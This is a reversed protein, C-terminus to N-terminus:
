YLHYTRILPQQERQADFRRSPYITDSDSDSSLSMKNAAMAARNIKSNLYGISSNSQKTSLSTSMKSNDHTFKLPRFWENNRRFNGIADNFSLSKVAEGTYTTAAPNPTNDNASSGSGSGGVGGGGVGGGGGGTNRSIHNTVPDDTDGNYGDEKDTMKADRECHNHYDYYRRDNHHNHGQYLNIHTNDDDDTPPHLKYRTYGFLLSSVFVWFHFSLVTGIYPLHYLLGRTQEMPPRVIFKYVARLKGHLWCSYKGQDSQEIDNIILNGNPNVQVRTDTSNAFGMYNLTKTGNKWWVLSNLNTGPCDMKIMEGVAGRAIRRVVKHKSEGSIERWKENTIKAKQTNDDYRQREGVSGCVSCRTWDQWDTFFLLNNVNSIEDESPKEYGKNYLSVRKVMTESSPLVDVHYFFSINSFISLMNSINSIHTVSGTEILTTMNERTMCFYGGADVEKISKFILTHTPTVIIRNEKEDDKMDTAVESVPLGSKEPVTRAIQYWLISSYVVTNSDNCFHCALSVPTGEDAVIVKHIPEPKSTSKSKFLSLHSICIGNADSATKQHNVDYTRKKRTASLTQTKGIDDKMLSPSKYQLVTENEMSINVELCHLGAEM